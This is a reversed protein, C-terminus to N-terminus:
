ASQLFNMLWSIGKRLGIFLILVPLVIPLLGVVEDLVHTMTAPTVISSLDQHFNDFPADPFSIDSNNVDDNVPIESLFYYELKSHLPAPSSIDLTGGLEPEEDDPSFSFALYNGSDLDTIRFKMFPFRSLDTSVDSCNEQIYQLITVFAYWCDFGDDDVHLNRSFIPPSNLSTYAYVELDYPYLPEVSDAFATVGVMSIVMVIVTLAVFLRKRFM